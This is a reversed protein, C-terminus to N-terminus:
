DGKSQNDQWFAAIAQQYILKVPQGTCIAIRRCDEYEPAVNRLQGQHYGLKVRVSEGSVSVIVSERELMRRAAHYLRVGLSSSEALVVAALTEAQEPRCIVKLLVGPRQKKMQVPQLLADLAGAAFLAELVDQYLEPNQDDINAELV